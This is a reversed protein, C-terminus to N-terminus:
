EKSSEFSKIERFLYLGLCLWSVRSFNRAMALGSPVKFGEVEPLSNCDMQKLELLRHKKNNIWLGTEGWKWLSTGATSLLLLNLINNSEQNLYYFNRPLNQRSPQATNENMTLTKISSILIFILLSIQVYKM